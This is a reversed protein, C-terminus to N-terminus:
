TEANSAQMDCVVAVVHCLTHSMPLGTPRTGLLDTRSEETRAAGSDCQFKQISVNDTLLHNYFSVRLFSINLIM